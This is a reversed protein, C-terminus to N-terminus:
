ASVTEPTKVADKLAANLPKAFPRYQNLSALDNNLIATAVIRVFDLDSNCLSTIDTKSAMKPDNVKGKKPEQVYDWLDKSETMTDKKTFARMTATNLSRFRTPDELLWPVLNPDIERNAKCVAHLKQGMGDKFTKRIDNQSAGESFMNFAAWIRNGTGMDLSGANKLENELLNDGMEALKDINGDKDLYSRIEVPVTLILPMNLQHLISNVRYLIAFRRYCTIGKYKPIVMKGRPAYVDKHVRVTTDPSISQKKGDVTIEFPNREDELGELFTMREKIAQEKEDKTLLRVLVVGLQSNWGLLMYLILKIQDRLDKFFGWFGDAKRSANCGEFHHIENIPTDQFKSM